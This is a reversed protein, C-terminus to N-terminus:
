SLPIFFLPALAKNFLQLLILDIITLMTTIQPRQVQILSSRFHNSLIKKEKEKETSEIEKGIKDREMCKKYEREKRKTERKCKRKRNKVGGKRRGKRRKM